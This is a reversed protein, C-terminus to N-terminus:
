SGANPAFADIAGHLLKESIQAVIANPAVVTVVYTKGDIEAFASDFALGAPM